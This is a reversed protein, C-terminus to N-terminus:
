GMLVIIILDLIFLLVITTELIVMWYNVWDQQLLQYLEGLTKLKENVVTQWDSMHFRASVNRYVRALHWDGFFKTINSLEDNFRELDVRIERLNRHIEQVRGPGTSGSM